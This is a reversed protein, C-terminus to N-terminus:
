IGSLILAIFSSFHILFLVFNTSSGPSQSQCFNHIMVLGWHKWKPAKSMMRPTCIVMSETAELCSCLHFLGWQKEEESWFFRTNRVGVKNNHRNRVQIYVLLLNFYIRNCGSSLSQVWQTDWCLFFFPLGYTGGFLRFKCFNELDAPAQHCLKCNVLGASMQDKGCNSMGHTWCAAVCFFMWKVEVPPWLVSVPITSLDPITMPLAFYIYFATSLDPVTMLLRFYLLLEWGGGAELLYCSPRPQHKGDACFM